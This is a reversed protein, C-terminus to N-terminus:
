RSPREALGEVLLRVFLHQHSKAEDEHEAVQHDPSPRCRGCRCNVAGPRMPATSIPPIKKALARM